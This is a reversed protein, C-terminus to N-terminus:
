AAERQYGVGEPQYDRWVEDPLESLHIGYFCLMRDLAWVGAREGTRWAYIRRAATEGVFPLTLDCRRHELFRIVSPGDAAKATNWSM